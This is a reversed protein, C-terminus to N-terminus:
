LGNDSTDRMVEKHRQKDRFAEEGEEEGKKKRREGGRAAVM